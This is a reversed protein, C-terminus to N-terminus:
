PWKTGAVNCRGALVPSNGEPNAMTTIQLKTTGPDSHWSPPFVWLVSQWILSKTLGAIKEQLSVQLQWFIYWCKVHRVHRKLWDGPMVYLSENRREQLSQMVAFGSNKRSQPAVNSVDSALVSCIENSACQDRAIGRVCFKNELHWAHGQGSAWCFHASSVHCGAPHSRQEKIQKGSCWLAIASHRRQLTELEHCSNAWWVPSVPGASWNVQVNQLDKFNIYNESM